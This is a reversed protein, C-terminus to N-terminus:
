EMSAKLSEISDTTSPDIGYLVGLYASTFDGILLASMMRTLKAKGVTEVEVVKGFREAMLDRAVEMKRKLRENEGSDKIIIAIAGCLLDESGERAMISNHFMEPFFNTAAPSKSNENFQTSYRYAVAQFQRPAYIFPIYGKILDALQKGMNENMPTEPKMSEALVRSVHIAELVEEWQEDSIMGLNKSVAALAFFQFPIAARPQVGKPFYVVPHGNEKGLKELEGGSCFCIIRCGKEVAQHYQSLTEETNGSYSVAFVLTEENVWGPLDYGRSVQIPKKTTYLLWDNLLLGGVASGGMGAILVSSYGSEEGLDVKLSEIIATEANDPFRSIEELMGDKDIEAIHELNDLPNDM